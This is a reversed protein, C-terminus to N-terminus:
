GLTGAPSHHVVARGLDDKRALSALALASDFVPGVPICALAPKREASFSRADIRVSTETPYHWQPTHSPGGFVTLVPKGFAAAIHSASGDICLVMEAAAIVALYGRLSTKGCLDIVSARTRSRLERVYAREWEETGGTIVFPGVGAAHLKDLVEAWAASGWSKSPWASTTHLVVYREPLGSPMWDAPPPLLRPPRFPIAEPVPMTQYYYLARYTPGEYIASRQSFILRHLPNLKNERMVILHKEPAFTTLAQICARLRHEFSVVMSARRFLGEPLSRVHQMLELMPAFGPRAALMVDSGTAAALKALAPELLLVDGLQKHLIVLPLSSM